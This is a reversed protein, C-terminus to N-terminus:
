PFKTQLKIIKISNIIFKSFKFSNVLFKFLFSIKSFPFRQFLWPSIEPGLGCPVPGAWLLFRDALGHWRAHCPWQVSGRRPPAATALLISSSIRRSRCTCRSFLFPSTDPMTLSAPVWWLPPAIHLHRLRTARHHRLLPSARRHDDAVEAPEPTVWPVLPLHTTWRNFSNQSANSAWRVPFSATVSQHFRAGLPASWRSSHILCRRPSTSSRRPAKSRLLVHPPAVITLPPEVAEWAMRFKPMPPFHAPDSQTACRPSPPDTPTLQLPLPVRRSAHCPRPSASWLRTVRYPHACAPPAIPIPQPGNPSLPLHTQSSQDWSIFLSM